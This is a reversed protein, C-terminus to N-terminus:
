FAICHPNEGLMYRMPPGAPGGSVGMAPAGVSGIGM